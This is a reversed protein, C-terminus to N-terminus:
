LLPQDFSYLAENIAFVDYIRRVIFYQVIIDAKSSKSLAFGARRLLDPYVAMQALRPYLVM